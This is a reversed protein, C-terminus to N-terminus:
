QTNGADYVVRGGFVAQLAEINKIEDEPCNLFDKAVVVLDALKGPELPGQGNEAFSLYAGNWTWM